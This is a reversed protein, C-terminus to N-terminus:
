TVYKFFLNIGQDYKPFDLQFLPHGGDSCSSLSLLEKNACLVSLHVAETIVVEFSFEYGGSVYVADLVYGDRQLHCFSLEFYWIVSCKGDTKAKENYPDQLIILFAFPRTEAISNQCCIM